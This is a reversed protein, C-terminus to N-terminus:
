KIELIKHYVQQSVAQHQDKIGVNSACLKEASFLRGFTVTVPALRPFRRGRPWTKFAGKMYVPIMPSQTEQILIGIGKKFPKLEGDISRQGEPFFCIIKNNKLVYSCAQLAAVLNYNQEISILRALSL